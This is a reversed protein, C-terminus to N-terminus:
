AVTMRRPALADAVDVTPGDLPLRPDFVDAALRRYPDLGAPGGGLAAALALAHRMGVGSEFAGSVVPVLGLAEAATAWALAARVGGLVVPKLVVARAYRHAGLRTPTM